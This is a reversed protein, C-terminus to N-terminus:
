FFLKFSCNVNILNIGNVAYNSYSFSPALYDIEFFKRQFDFLTSVQCFMEQEGRPGIGVVLLSSFLCPNPDEM